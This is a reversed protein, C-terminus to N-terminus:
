KYGKTYKSAVSNQRENYCFNLVGEIVRLILMPDMVDGFLEEYIGPKRFMAEFSTKTDTAITEYAEICRTIEEDEAEEGKEQVDIFDKALKTFNLAKLKFEEVAKIFKVDNPFVSVLKGNIKIQTGELEPIHLEFISSKTVEEEKKVVKKTAM